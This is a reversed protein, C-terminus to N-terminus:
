KHARELIEEATEAPASKSSEGKREHLSFGMDEHYFLLSCMFLFLVHYGM